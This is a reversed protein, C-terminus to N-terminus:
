RNEGRVLGARELVLLDKNNASLPASMNMWGRGGLRVSAHGGKRQGMIMNMWGWGGLCM